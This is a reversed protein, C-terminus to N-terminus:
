RCVNQRKTLRGREVAIRPANQTFKELRRNIRQRIIKAKETSLTKGATTRDKTRITIIGKRTSKSYLYCEYSSRM